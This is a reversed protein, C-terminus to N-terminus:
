NFAFGSGQGTGKLKEETELRAVVGGTPNDQIFTKLLVAIGQM